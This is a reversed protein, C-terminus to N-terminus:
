PLERIFAVAQAIFTVSQEMYGGVGPPTALDSAIRKIDESVAHLAAAQIRLKEATGTPLGGDRAQTLQTLIADIPGFDIGIQKVAEPDYGHTAEIATNLYEKALQIAAAANSIVEKPTSTHDGAEACM